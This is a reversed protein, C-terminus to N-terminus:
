SGSSVPPSCISAIMLAELTPSPPFDLDCNRHAKEQGWISFSPPSVVVARLLPALPGGGGGAQLQTAKQLVLLAM